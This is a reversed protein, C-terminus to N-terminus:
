LRSTACQSSPLLSRAKQWESNWGIRSDCARCKRSIAGIPRSCCPTIPWPGDARNRSLASIPLACTQVGTVTLDRIGDEAQFFFRTVVRAAVSYNDAIYLVAAAM